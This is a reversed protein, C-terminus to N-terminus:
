KDSKRAQQGVINEGAKTFNLRFFGFLTVTVDPTVTHMMIKKVYCKFHFICFLYVSMSGQTYKNNNNTTAM